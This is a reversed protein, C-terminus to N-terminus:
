PSLCLAFTNHSIESHSAAPQFGVHLQGLIGGQFELQPHGSALNFNPPLPRGDAAKLAEEGTQAEGSQSSGIFPSQATEQDLQHGAFGLAYGAQFIWESPRVGFDVEFNM